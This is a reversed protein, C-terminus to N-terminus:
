SSQRGHCKKYKKGSGCPCPDNRGPQHGAPHVGGSSAATIQARALTGSLPTISPLVPHEFYSAKHKRLLAEGDREWSFRPRKLVRQFVQSAREPDQEALRRLLRPSITPSELYGLMAEQHHRDATLEPHAFAEEVLGFNTLFNLGDVEDYILGVTEAERLEEPLELKPVPPVTGYAHRARDAASQGEANRVEYTRFHHYARMREALERGPLVILDAGFFTIFSEREERQMEWAQELKKPNRFILAPHQQALDAALRYADLQQSAPLVNLYGSVLWEDGIPVLRGILFSGAPMQKFVRPGMNSHVRYTLEDVLNVVILADGDQRQVAFIGEVVGQWGLLMAREAEPLEPHASVFHDVVTRGDSLRHQLIFWDLFNGVEGENAVITPGFHETLAQRLARDFRPGQGFELLDRKLDGSRQILNQNVPM